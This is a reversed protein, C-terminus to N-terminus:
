HNSSVIFGVELSSLNHMLFVELPKGNLIVDGKSWQSISINETNLNLINSHDPRLPDTKGINMLKERYKAIDDTKGEENNESHLIKNENSTFPEEFDIEELSLEKVIANHSDNETKSLFLNNNIIKTTEIDLASRKMQVEESDIIKKRKNRSNTTM